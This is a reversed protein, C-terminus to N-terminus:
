SSRFTESNINRSDILGSLSSKMANNNRLALTKDDCQPTGMNERKSSFIVLLKIM